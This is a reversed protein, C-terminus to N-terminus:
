WQVSELPMLPGDKCLRVPGDRTGVVCGQCAGYGCGMREELAVYVGRDGPLGAALQRYMAEPGCAIIGLGPRWMDLARAGATGQGLEEVLVTREPLVAADAACRLGFVTAEVLEPHRRAFFDLPAIGSGGGVLLYRRGPDITKRYALGYPGRVECLTGRPAEALRARLLGEDKVLFACRNGDTWLLSLPRPLPPGCETRAMLFQGPEGPIERETALEVVAYSGSRHRAVLRASQWCLFLSGQEPTAAQAVHKTNRV